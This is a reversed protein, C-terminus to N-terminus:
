AHDIVWGIVFFAAAGVVTIGTFPALILCVVGCIYMLTSMASGWDNRFSGGSDIGHKTSM